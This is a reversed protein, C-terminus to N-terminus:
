LKKDTLISSNTFLDSIFLAGASPPVLGGYVTVKVNKTDTGGSFNTNLGSKYEPTNFQIVGAARVAKELPSMIIPFQSILSYKLQIHDVKETIIKASSYEQFFQDTEEKEKNLSMRNVKRIKHFIDSITNLFSKLGKM